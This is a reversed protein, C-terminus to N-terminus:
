GAVDGSLLKLANAWYQLGSTLSSLRAFNVQVVDKISHQIQEFRPAPPAHQWVSVGLPSAHM